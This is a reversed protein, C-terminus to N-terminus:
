IARDLDFHGYPIRSGCIEQCTGTNLEWFSRRLTHGLSCSCFEAVYSRRSIRRVYMEDVDDVDDVDDVNDVDDVDVKDDVDVIDHIDVVDDVDEVDDVDHIWYIM